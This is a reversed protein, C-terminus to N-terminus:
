FLVVGIVGVVGYMMTPSLGFLTAPTFPKAVKRETVPPDATDTKKLTFKPVADEPESESDVMNKIHIESHDKLTITEQGPEEVITEPQLEENVPEEVITEPQLEENVPEEVITEPQPEENVPEEVITENVREEVKNITEQNRTKAESTKRNRDKRHSKKSYGPM